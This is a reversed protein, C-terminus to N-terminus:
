RVWAAPHGLEDINGYENWSPQKLRPCRLILELQTSLAITEVELDRLRDFM